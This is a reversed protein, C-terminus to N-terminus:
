LNNEKEEQYRYGRKVIFHHIISMLPFHLDNIIHTLEALLDEGNRGVVEKALYGEVAADAFFYRTKSM